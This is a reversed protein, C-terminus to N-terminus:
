LDHQSKVKESQGSMILIIRITFDYYKKVIVSRHCFSITIFSYSSESCVTVEVHQPVSFFVPFLEKNETM